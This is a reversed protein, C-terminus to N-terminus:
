AKANKVEQTGQQAVKLSSASFIGVAAVIGQTLAPPPTQGKATYFLWMGGLVVAAALALIKKKDM